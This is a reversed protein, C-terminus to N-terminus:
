EESLMGNPGDPTARQKWNIRPMRFVNELVSNIISLFDSHKTVYAGDEAADDTQHEEAETRQIFHDWEPCGLCESDTPLPVTPIERLQWM